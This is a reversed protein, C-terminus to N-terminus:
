RRVSIAPDLIALADAANTKGTSDIDDGSYTRGAARCSGASAPIRSATTPGCSAVNASAPPRADRAPGSTPSTACGTLLTAALLASAFPAGTSSNM